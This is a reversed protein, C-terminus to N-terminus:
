TINVLMEESAGSILAAAGRLFFFSFDWHQKTKLIGFENTQKKKKRRYKQRKHGDNMLSTKTRDLFFLRLKGFFIVLLV